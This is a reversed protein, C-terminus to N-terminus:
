PIAQVKKKAREGYDPMHEVSVQKPNYGIGEQLQRTTGTYEVTVGRDARGLIEAGDLNEIAEVLENITLAKNQVSEVTMVVVYRLIKSM